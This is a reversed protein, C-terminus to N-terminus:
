GAFYPIQFVARSFAGMYLFIRVQRARQVRHVAERSCASGMM